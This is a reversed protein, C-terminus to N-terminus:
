GQTKIRLCIGNGRDLEILCGSGATEGSLPLEVFGASDPSSSPNLKRRWNQFSSLALAHRACFQAQTLGSQAQAEILKRWQAASRRPRRISTDETSTM